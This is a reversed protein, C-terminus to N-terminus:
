RLPINTGVGISIFKIADLLVTQPTQEVSVIDGPSLRLNALEDRKAQSITLNVIATQDSDPQRRIVFVKNAVPSSVGGALAIADLVRLDEGLPLEYRNPKQVLGIVHVPEPDRKEVHVIGGDGLQYGGAGTRTAAVLDVKITTLGTAGVERIPPSFNLGVQNVDGSGGSAIPPTDRGTPDAISAPNRIEVKTGADEDLGGAAVLAALLDSSGRPISYVGPEKVAGTVTIRNTRQQKMTVTIQPNRYLQRQIATATIAAEAAAPELGSVPVPGIIPLNAAGEDNVRVPISISDKEGLGTAITVELVDGVDIRESNTAKSALRSLDITQTNERRAAVLTPPLANYAYVKGPPASSRCGGLFSSMGLTIAIAMLRRWGASPTQCCNRGPLQGDMPRFCGQKLTRSDM